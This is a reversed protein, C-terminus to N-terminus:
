VSFMRESHSKKILGRNIVTISWKADWSRWQAIATLRRDRDSSDDGSSNIYKHADNGFSEQSSYGNTRQVPNILELKENMRPPNNRTYKSNTEGVFVSKTKGHM